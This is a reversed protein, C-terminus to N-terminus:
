GFPSMPQFWKSVLFGKKTGSVTIKDDFHLKFRSLVRNVAETPNVPLVM